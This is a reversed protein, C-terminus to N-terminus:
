RRGAGVEREVGSCEVQEGRELKRINYTHMMISYTHM